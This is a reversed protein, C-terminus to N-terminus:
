SQKAADGSGRERPQKEQERHGDNEDTANPRRKDESTETWPAAARAGQETKSAGTRPTQGGSTGLHELGPPPPGQQKNRGLHELGQHRSEKRRMKHDKRKPREKKNQGPHELRPCEVDEDARPQKHEAEDHDGRSQMEEPEEEDSSRHKEEAEDGQSSWRMGADEDEQTCRQM